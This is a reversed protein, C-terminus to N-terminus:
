NKLNGYKNLEEPSNINAFEDAALWPDADFSTFLTNLGQLADTVKLRGEELCLRFHPECTKNYIACLPETKGLHETVLVDEHNSRSILEQLLRVSLFPMDCGLVLNKQTTSQVLGTFIGGLPGKENYIDKFCPHGFRLYEPNQTIIIIHGAITKVKEIAHEIMMKGWFGVLGKDEQMRSSKGGALIIATIDKLEPMPAIM